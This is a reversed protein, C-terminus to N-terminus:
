KRRRKKKSRKKSKKKGKYKSGRKEEKSHIRFKAILNFAVNDNFFSSSFDNNARQKRTLIPNEVRVRNWDVNFINPVVKAALAFNDTINYSAIPILTLHLRAKITRIPFSNSIKPISNSYLFIPETAIALGINIKDNKNSFFYKGFEVRTNIDWQTFNVGRLIEINTNTGDSTTNTRLEDENSFSLRTLSFERYSKNSYINQISLGINFKEQTTINTSETLTENFFSSRSESFIIDEPTYNVFISIHTTSKNSKTNQGILATSLFLITFFFLTLKKM